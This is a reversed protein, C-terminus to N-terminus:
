CGGGKKSCNCGSAELAVKEEKIFMKARNKVNEWDVMHGDFEPGDVCAFKIENGIKVRCAGCMGTGDLMIPNLSVVTKIGKTRTKNSVSEMMVLPGIAVVMDIKENNIIRELIDTVFGKEGYSGDDTVPYLVDSVKRMKDEWILSEGSRSGIISIIRNGKDHLARTIPYLPAVGVGGGVCVVTGCYDIESERGLPGVFDLIQDGEELKGLDLTSRGVEQFIITIIGETRDYGAITLPIREAKDDQRLIIFQGARAKAAIKPAFIEFLKIGPALIHKKRIEYM